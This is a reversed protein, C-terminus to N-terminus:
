FRDRTQSFPEGKGFSFATSPRVKFVRATNGGLHFAGDKVTFAWDRGYKALYAEAVGRLHTDDRVNVAEGDVM